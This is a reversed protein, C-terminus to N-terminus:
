PRSRGAPSSGRRRRPRRADRRRASGRGRRGRPPRETRRARAHRHDGVLADLELEPGARELDRRAVVRVVVLDAASVPQGSSVTIPGSPRMFASAPSSAPRVCSSASSRMRSQSRSCSWSSFRSDSGDCPRARRGSCTASRAASRAETTTSSPPASSAPARPAARGAANAEVRLRLVPERDVRELVAGSQFMERWIQHPCWSGTQSHGSPCTVTWSVGGLRRPTRSAGLEHAALVDEVRPERRREPRERREAPRVVGVVQPREVGAIKFVVARSMMRSQSFRIIKEPSSSIPSTGNRSTTMWESTCAGVPPRIDFLRPVPM